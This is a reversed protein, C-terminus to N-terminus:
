RKLGRLLAETEELFEGLHNLEMELRRDGEAHEFVARLKQTYEKLKRIQYDSTITSEDAIDKRIELILSEIKLWGEPSFDAFTQADSKWLAPALGLKEVMLRRANEIEAQDDTTYICLVHDKHPFPDEDMPKRSILAGQLEGSEVLADITPMLENVKASEGFFLWKGRVQPGLRGGPPNIIFFSTNQAIM